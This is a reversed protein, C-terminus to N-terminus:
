IKEEVFTLDDMRVILVKESMAAGGDVGLHHGGHFFGKGSYSDFFQVPTHGHVILKGDLVDGKIPDFENYFEDRIWLMEEPKQIDLIYGSEFGAHVYMCNNAEDIKYYPLQNLQKILDVLHNNLMFYADFPSEPIGNLFSKLTNTGGNGIWTQGNVQLNIYSDLDDKPDQINVFDLFMQEHNGRLYTVQNPYEKRLNLAYEVCELSKPGRDILDGLIVLKDNNNLDINSKDIARMWADYQGHIDSCVYTAM